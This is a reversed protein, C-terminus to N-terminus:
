KSGNQKFCKKIGATIKSRPVDSGIFVLENDGEYAIPEYSFNGAVYDVLHTGTSFHVYGKARFVTDPLEAFFAELKVRDLTGPTLVTCYEFSPGAQEPAKGPDSGKGELIGILDVKGRQTTLQFARPNLTKIERTVRDLEEPSVLDTKNLLLVDGAKIHVVYQYALKQYLRTFASVDVVVITPEVRYFKYLDTELLANLVKSPDSSGSAEILVRQAGLAAMARLDDSFNKSFQKVVCGNALVATEADPRQVIQADVRMEALDHVLVATKEAVNPQALFQRLVTTKGSGLFGGILNVKIKNAVHETGKDAPHM